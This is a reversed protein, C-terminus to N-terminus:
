RGGHAALLKWTAAVQEPNLEQNSRYKDTLNDDAVVMPTRGFSDKTHLPVGREIFFALVPTAAASAAAHAVAQGHDNVANIDNGWEILLKIAELVDRDANSRRKIAGSPGQTGYGLGAAVMLPTTNEMSALRPDAGNAKLLRMADLDITHAALWFPTIGALEVDDIKPRASPALPRPSKVTPTQSNPDAGRALLAKMLALTEQDLSRWRPADLTRRVRRRVIVHLPSFGAKDTLSPDAGREVLVSAVDLNANNIAVTLATNGDPARDNVNAGAALLARTSALDGQRVAFLLATFGSKSRDTVQAGREILARVVEPHREHEGAAVMLATQGRWAEPANVDAGADALAAILAPSGARAAALIPPEGGVAPRNPNAGAELLLRVVDLHGNACAVWLPTAGYRNATEARAGARLLLQLTEVDNWHAAWHVATTGDSLTANVDAQQKLLAAVAARDRNKAAEPLSPGAAALAAVAVLLLVGSLGVTARM